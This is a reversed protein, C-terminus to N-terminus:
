KISRMSLAEAIPGHQYGGRFSGKTFIITRMPENSQTVTIYSENFQRVEDPFFLKGYNKDRKACKLIGLLVWFDITTTKVKLISAVDATSHLEGISKKVQNNFFE